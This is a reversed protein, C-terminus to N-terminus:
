RYDPRDRTDRKSGSTSSSRSSSGTSPSTSRGSSERVGAWPDRTGFLGGLFGGGSGSSMPNGGGALERGIAGGAMAGLPGAMAGGLMAGLGGGLGTKALNGLKSTDMNGFPGGPSATTGDPRQITTVGFRNTVARGQPTDQWTNGLHDGPLSPAVPPVSYGRPQVPNVVPAQVPPQIQPAALPPPPAGPVDLVPDPPRMVATPAPQAPALGRLQAYERYAALVKPDVPNARVPDPKVPGTPMPRIFDPPPAGPIRGGPMPRDPRLSAPGLPAREVPGLPAAYTQEQPRLTRNTPASPSRAEDPRYPSRRTPAPVPLDYSHTVSPDVKEMFGRPGSIRTDPASRNGPALGHFHVSRGLGLAKAGAEIMPNVWRRLNSADSYYPNAYDLAGGIAPPLGAQRKALHENVANQVSRPARPTNQVSGHPNLRAPGTIKSFARRENLVDTVTKGYRGSALRNTITDVVGGVMRQYTLPDRGVPVETAVVRAIYDIDQASLRVPRDSHAYKAM